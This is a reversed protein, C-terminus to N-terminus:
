IVHKWEEIIKEKSFDMIRNFARESYEELLDYNKMLDAMSKSLVKEEYTLEDNNNYMKGDCVPVLIGHEEYETAKAELCIDTGPALIERPGSKCDSSIVPISCAMAECLANPFGEYLSSFAYITSRSIYKFPNKQFGLFYVDHELGLNITIQKLYDKLDGQGLIILNADPIEDKLQKFARILHWHGKQKTLRGVTIITPKNFIYKYEEEIDECALEKIREIDYLNYIVKIKEEPLNFKEVLDKKIAKSVSIIIDAKNYLLKILVRYIMGYFGNSSKSIFNRVSVIVKDDMRSFINVINPGSLLSITTDIKYEKKVIRLRQIRIIFNKIKGLPNPTAKVNLSILQGEYPYDLISDDYVIIYKNYKDEQLYTSLNSAVREAGGGALQPILIAVNKKM